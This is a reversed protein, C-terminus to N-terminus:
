LVVGGAPRFRAHGFGVGVGIVSAVLVFFLAQGTRSGRSSGVPTAGVGLVKTTPAAAVAAPGAAVVEGAATDAATPSSEFTGAAQAPSFSGLPSSISPSVPPTFDFSGSSSGTSPSSAPGSAGGPPAFDDGSAGSSFADSGAASSSPGTGSGTVELKPPNFRVEFGVPLAGSGAPVIMLSPSSPDGASTSSLVNRVDATWVGAANRTLPAKAVDCEPKPAKDASQKPGGVWGNPTPCVQLQAGAQQVGGEETLTLTASEITTVTLPARVAAVSVSGSPAVSVAFGREPASAAPSSTWWGVEVAAEDATAAPASAVLAILAAAVLAVRGTRSRSM